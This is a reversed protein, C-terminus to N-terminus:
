MTGQEVSMNFNKMVEVQGMKTKYTKCANRVEIVNM